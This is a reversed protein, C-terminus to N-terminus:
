ESTTRHQVQLGAFILSTLMVFIPPVFVLPLHKVKGALEIMGWILALIMTVSIGMLSARTLLARQFEDKKPTALLAFAWLTGAVSGIFGVLSAYWLPDAKLTLVLHATAFCTFFCLEFAGVLLITRLKKPITLITLM